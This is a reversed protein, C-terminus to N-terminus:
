EVCGEIPPHFRVRLHASVRYKVTCKRLVVVVYIHCTHTPGVLSSNKVSCTDDTMRKKTCKKVFCIYKIFIPVALEQISM